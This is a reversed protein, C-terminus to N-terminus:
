TPKSPDRWSWFIGEIIAAILSVSISLAAAQVLLTSSVRLRLEGALVMNISSMAVVYLATWVLCIVSLHISSRNPLLAGLALYFSFVMVGTYLFPVDDLIWAPLGYGFRYGTWNGVAVMLALLGYIWSRRWGRDDYLM